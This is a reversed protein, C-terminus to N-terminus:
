CVARTPKNEKLFPNLPWFISFVMIKSIKGYSSMNFKLHCFDYFLKACGISKGIPFAIQICLSRMAPLFKATFFVLEIENGIKQHSTTNKLFRIFPKVVRQTGPHSWAPIAVWTTTSFFIQLSFLSVLYSRPRSFNTSFIQSHFRSYSIM